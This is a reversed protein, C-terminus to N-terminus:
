SFDADIMLWKHDAMSYDHNGMDKASVKLRKALVWDLKGKVVMRFPLSAELTVDKDPDWPDEFGPNVVDRCFEPYFGWEILKDNVVERSNAQLESESVSFLNEFWFRAESTGITRFRLHDRCLFPAFRTIGHGFTNLDGLIVQHVLGRSIKKRSDRLIDAFQYIRDSIGCFVELHCCYCVLPGHPTDVVM